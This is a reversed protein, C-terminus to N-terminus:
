ASENISVLPTRRVDTFGLVSTGITNRTEPPLLITPSSREFSLIVVDTSSAM